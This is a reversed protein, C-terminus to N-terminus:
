MDIVSPGVFIIRICLHLKIDIKWKVFDTLTPGQACRHPTIRVTSVTHTPSNGLAHYGPHCLVLCALQARTHM